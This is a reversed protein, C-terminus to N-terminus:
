QAPTPRPTNLRPLVQQPPQYGQGPVRNNAPPEDPSQTEPEPQTEAPPAPPAENVVPPSPPEGQAVAGSYAAWLSAARAKADPMSLVLRKDNAARALDDRLAQAPLDGAAAALLALAYAETFDRPIKRGEYYDFAVNRIEQPSVGAINDTTAAVYNQGRDTRERFYAGAQLEATRAALPTLKTAIAALNGDSVPGGLARGVLLFQYLDPLESPGLEPLADTGFASALAVAAGVDGGSALRLLAAAGGERDQLAGLGLIAANAAGLPTSTDVAPLALAVAAPGSTVTPNLATILAEDVVGGAFRELPVPEAPQLSLRLAGKKQVFDGAMRAWEEAQARLAPSAGGPLGDLLANVSMLPMAALGARMQDPSVGQGEAAITTAADVLGFDRYTLTFSRLTGAVTPAKSVPMGGDEIATVDDMPVLIHFGDVAGSVQLQGVRPLDMGLSFDYAARANDSKFTFVADGSLREQGLAALGKRVDPPLDLRSLDVAFNGLQTSQEGIRFREATFDFPGRRIHLDSVVFSQTVPDYARTGYTIVAFSRGVQVALDFVLPSYPLLFRGLSDNAVFAPALTQAQAATGALGCLALGLATSRTWRAAGRGLRGTTRM